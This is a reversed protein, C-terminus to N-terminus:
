WNCYGYKPHDHLLLFKLQEFWFCGMDLLLLGLFWRTLLLNKVLEDAFWNNPSLENLWWCDWCNAHLCQQNKQQQDSQATVTWSHCTHGDGMMEGGDGSIGQSNCWAFGRCDMLSMGVIAMAQQPQEPRTKPWLKWLCSQSELLKPGTTTPRHQSEWMWTKVKWKASVKRISPKFQMVEYFASCIISKSHTISIRQMETPYTRTHVRWKLRQAM